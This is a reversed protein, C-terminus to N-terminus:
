ILPWELTMVWWHSSIRDCLYTSMWSDQSMLIFIDPWLSLHGNLLRWPGCIYIYGTVSTRNSLHDNLLRSEGTRFYGTVSILPWELTKAWWYSFMRDGLYTAMWSDDHDMLIFVDPWLPVTIYTTMWSDHSMLAFIDPWLSLPGYFLRWPGDTRLYGTVSTRPWELTM